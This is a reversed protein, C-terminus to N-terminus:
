PHVLSLLLHLKRVLDDALQQLAFFQNQAVLFHLSLYHLQLPFLENDCFLFIVRQTMLLHLSVVVLMRLNHLVHHELQLFLPFFYARQALHLFELQVFDLLFHNALLFQLLFYPLVIHLHLFHVPFFSLLKGLSDLEEVGFLDVDTLDLNRGGVTGSDLLLLTNGDFQALKLAFLLFDEPFHQVKGFVFSLRAFRHPYLPVGVHGESLIEVLHVILSVLLNRLDSSQFVQYLEM